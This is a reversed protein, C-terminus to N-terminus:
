GCASGGSQPCGSGRPSPNRGGPPRGSGPPPGGGRQPQRRSGSFEAAGRRHATRFFRLRRAILRLELSLVASWGALTGDEFKRVPLVEYRGAVLELGQLVPELYDGTPDYQWYERVGLRQYLRRKPGQDLRWKKPGTIELVFDPAKPEEWLLYNPRMRDPAGFVVFVDPAVRRKPNGEEYYILLNGTVYVNPDRRFYLRLRDVTYLLPFLQADGEAM